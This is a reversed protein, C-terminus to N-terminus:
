GFGEPKVLRTHTKIHGGRNAPNGHWVRIDGRASQREASKRAGRRSCSAWPFVLGVCAWHEPRGITASKTARRCGDKLVRGPTLPPRAAPGRYLAPKTIRRPLDHGERRKGRPNEAPRPCRFAFTHTSCIRLRFLSLVQATGRWLLLPRLDTEAAPM